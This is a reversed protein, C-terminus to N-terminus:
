VGARTPGPSGPPRTDERGTGGPAPTRARGRARAAAIRSEVPPHTHFMWVAARSPHEEALNQAAMRRLAAVFADPQRSAELAFRDARREHLRSLANLLPTAATWVALAALAVIPLGAPDTPSELGISGGTRRVLVDALYFCGALVALEAALTGVVDRHAHHGLEHALIVEIEDDTYDALLGDSLVIRRTTGAGLLAARAGRNRTGLQWEFVDVASVGARESLVILRRRLEDRELPRYRHFLPLLVVPGLATLLALMATTAGAAAAWWWQPWTWMAM